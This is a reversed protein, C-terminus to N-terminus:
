RVGILRKSELTVHDNKWPTPSHIALLWKRLPLKRGQFVTGAQPSTQHRCGQWERLERGTHHIAWAHSHGRTPCRFGLPWGARESARPM